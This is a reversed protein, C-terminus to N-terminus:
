RLLDQPALLKTCKAKLGEVVGVFISKIALGGMIKM